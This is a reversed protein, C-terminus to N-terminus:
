RYRVKYVAGPGFVPGAVYLGGWRDFATGGPLNLQGRVLERKYGAQHHRGPYQLFLGGVTPGGLEFQLWSANDLQVVALTGHPGGALDVISTYGDAYRTCSGKSPKEPDCVAGVSGPRIRWIESTGPTAPFGRLEGVYWSGDPGVTVSTAVAEALIPTGAPPLPNGEPDKAPLGAPVKVLRPKLRAVTRILGNPWVRLLDNNAADSVLVTGDKLAAVGFPNSETPSDAQNYPDPDHAQYAAIDAVKVAKGHWFRYLTAGGPPTDGEPGGGGTLAYTRGWKDTDIAPAFGGPVQGLKWTKHGDTAYVSGDTVSYIVQNKYTSVGRPGDLGTAVPKLSSHNTGGADAQGAVLVSGALALAALAALRTRVGM